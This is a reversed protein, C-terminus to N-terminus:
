RWQGRFLTRRSAPPSDDKLFLDHPDAEERDPLPLVVFDASKGPELSGCEDAWGLAKAGSLTIMKLLQDGPFDPYRFRVFRAEAMIDLDPNSALSDTGLCVSVGRALFERFPHPPHGFAAHTRPCYVVHDRWSFPTDPALYNCHIFLRSTSFFYQDFLFLNKNNCIAKANWVRLEELFAVFPGTKSRLLEIEAPSEAFHIASHHRLMCRIAWINHVSYPAHPSVAWRIDRTWPFRGSDDTLENWAKWAAQLKEFDLGILEWFLVARIRSLPPADDWQSQGVPPRHGGAKGQNVGGAKGSLAEYSTGGSTIDGVLTTGSELMESLGDEIDQQVQEPTCERRYAIVGRLWDTFHDPDTPPIKGRAGTLDLHTHANVFGPLIAANGFHEDPTRTGVPEVAVILNGDYTVTGNPLPPGAVPFVFRASVTHM